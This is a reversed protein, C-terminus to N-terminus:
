RRGHWGGDGRGGGHREGDYDGDHHRRRGGFQFLFADGFFPPPAYAPEAYSYEYGPAYNPAYGPGSAAYGYEGGVCGGLSLLAVGLFSTLKRM